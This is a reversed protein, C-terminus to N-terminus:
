GLYQAVLTLFKDIDEQVSLVVNPFPNQVEGKNVIVIKGRVLGPILAAPYVVCSTGILFFLDASEALAYAEELHRM